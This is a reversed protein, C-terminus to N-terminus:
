FDLQTAKFKKDITNLISQFVDPNNNTYFSQESNSVSNNILNELELINKTQRAVAEGSDIITVNYGIIESIQPILFPYHTCGLVLNDIKKELMPYLHKRLLVDMEPSNMKGSEILEVIGEGIQEVVEVGKAFKQSTEYFLDSTITGETALIGVTRTKSNLAAPKIAPQIRIFPVDYKERLTKVANTSATNCAVVILKCGKKLLFETNKISLEIIREKSKKGYPANKSDALYIINESPLIAHIEEFITIGGLGSDFIGIPNASMNDKLTPNNLKAEV